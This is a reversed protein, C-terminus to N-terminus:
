GETEGPSATGRPAGGAPLDVPVQVTVQSGDSFKFTVPVNDGPLLPEALNSLVLYEGQDPVLLAYSGSAIPVSFQNQGISTPTPTPTPTPSASASPSGSATATATPTPAPPPTTPQAGGVLVVTGAASDAGVLNVPSPGTNFIRVALPANAGAPYGASDKYEVVVNRLQISGSPGANVNAGPVGPVQNATQALQGSGCATLATLAALGALLTTAALVGPRSTRRSFRSATM